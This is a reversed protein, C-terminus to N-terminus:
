RYVNEATEVFIGRTVTVLKVTLQIVATQIRVAGAHAPHEHVANPVQLSTIMQGPVIIFASIAHDLIGHDLDHGTILTVQAIIQAQSHLVHIFTTQVVPRIQGRTRSTIKYEILIAV